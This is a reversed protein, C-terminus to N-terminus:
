LGMKSMWFFPLLWKQNLYVYNFYFYNPITVRHSFLNKINHIVVWWHCFLNKINHIVVWWHCFLNKINHIVMWWHCFLNKINHMVMWWHCFLLNSFNAIIKMILHLTNSFLYHFFNANLPQTTGMDLKYRAEALTTYVYLCWLFYSWANNYYVSIKKDRQRCPFVFFVLREITYYLFPYFFCPKICSFINLIPTYSETACKLEPLRAM